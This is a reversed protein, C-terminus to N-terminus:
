RDLAQSAMPPHPLSSCTRNSSTVTLSVPSSQQATQASLSLSLVLSHLNLRTCHGHSCPCLRQEACPILFHRTQTCTPSELQRIPQTVKHGFIVTSRVGTPAPTLAPPTRISLCGQLAAAASPHPFSRPGLWRANFTLHGPVCASTPNSCSPLARIWFGISYIQM